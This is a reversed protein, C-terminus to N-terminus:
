AGATRLRAAAKLRSAEAARLATRASAAGDESLRYYRRRPRGAPVHVDPEEWESKLWGLRELRLLIPYVTGSPLGTAACLEFGHIRRAPDAMLEGLVLQTQLTMRPMKRSM